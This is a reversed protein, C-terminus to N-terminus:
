SACSATPPSRAVARRLLRRAGAAAHQPLRRADLRPAPVGADQRPLRGRLVPLDLGALGQAAASRGRPRQVRLDPRQRQQAGARRHRDGGALMLLSGVLTYIFSSSSRRSRPEAGGWIGTLFLVAAADPRLVAVFLALDQAMCRASCRARPSAAPLLLVARAREGSAARPGCRRPWRLHVAAAAILFLNLGDIGLKYHIGLQSIWMEDTVYQLGRAGRTSTSAVRLDRARADAARRALPSPLPAPPAPVLLASSRRRRAPALAPHLSTLTM